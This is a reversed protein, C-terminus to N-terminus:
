SNSKILLEIANLDIKSSVIGAISYLDLFFGLIGMSGNFILLLSSFFLIQSLVMWRRKERNLSRIEKLEDGSLSRPDRAVNNMRLKALKFNVRINYVTLIVFVIYVLVVGFTNTM